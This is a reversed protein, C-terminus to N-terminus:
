IIPVGLESYLATNHMKKLEATTVVTYNDYDGLAFTITPKVLAPASATPLTGSVSYHWPAWDFAMEAFVSGLTAQPNSASNNRTYMRIANLTGTKTYQYYHIRLVYETGATEPEYGFQSINVKSDLTGLSMLRTAVMIQEPTPVELQHFNLIAQDPAIEDWSSPAPATFGTTWAGQLLRGTGADEYISTYVRDFVTANEIQTLVERDYVPTIQYNVDVPNVAYIKDSGFAKLIDGMIIGRDESDVLASILGNMMTMYGDWTNGVQNSYATKGSDRNISGDTNVWTLVGGNPSLDPAYGLFRSQTFVYYQGKVSTSDMYVNSNLWFWRDLLPLTNPIWIQSMRAALENLDFWMRSLNSRLDDPKFGMATILASPLYKNRQDYLRMTGYARVGSAWAAFVNAGAIVVEMLDASTYSTNRSNAHVVFSYMSDKAANLADTNGGGLTPLFFLSMVGPVTYGLDTTMQTGSGAFGLPQGTTQSFPLSAAAKLLEPNTAYWRVDNSACSDKMKQPGSTELKDFKSVRENDLNVRKSRNDKRPQERKVKNNNTKGNSQKRM